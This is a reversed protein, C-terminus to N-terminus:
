THLVQLNHAETWNEKTIFCTHWSQGKNNNATLTLHPGILLTHTIGNYLVVLQGLVWIPLDVVCVVIVSSVVVDYSVYVFGVVVYMMCCLWSLSSKYLKTFLLFILLLFLFVVFFWSLIFLICCLLQSLVWINLDVVCCCNFCCWWEWVVCCTSLPGLHAPRCWACCQFGVVCLVFLFLLSM